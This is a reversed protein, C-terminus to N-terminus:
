EKEFHNMVLLCGFFTMVSITMVFLAITFLVSGPNFINLLMVSLVGLILAACSMAVGMAGVQFGLSPTTMHTSLHVPPDGEM